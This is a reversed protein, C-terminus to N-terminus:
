IDFLAKSISNFFKKIKKNKRGLIELVIMGCSFPLSVVLAGVITRGELSWKPYFYVLLALFFWYLFFSAISLLYKNSKM